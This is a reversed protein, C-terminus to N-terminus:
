LLEACARTVLLSPNSEKMYMTCLSPWWKALLYLACDLSNKWYRFTLSRPRGSAMHVLKEQKTAIFLKPHAVSKSTTWLGMSKGSSSSIPRMKSSKPHRLCRRPYLSCLDTLSCSSALFFLHGWDEPMQGEHSVCCKLVIVIHCSSVLELLKNM